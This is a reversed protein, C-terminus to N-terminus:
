YRRNFAGFAELLKHSQANPTYIVLFNWLPSITTAASVKNELIESEVLDFRLCTSIRGLVSLLEIALHNTRVFM